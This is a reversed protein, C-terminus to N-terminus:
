DFAFVYTNTLEPGDSLPVDIARVEITVAATNYMTFAETVVITQGKAVPRNPSEIDILAPDVNTTRELVMDNQMALSSYAEYFTTAENATNTFSYTVIIVFNDDLDREFKGSEMTLGTTSPKVSGSTPENADPDATERCGFLVLTLSLATIVSVIKLLKTTKMM